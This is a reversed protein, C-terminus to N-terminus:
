LLTQVGVWIAVGIASIGVTIAAAAVRKRLFRQMDGINNVDKELKGLRQEHETSAKVYRESMTHVDSHLQEMSTRLALIEAKLQGFLGNDGRQGFLHGDMHGVQDALLRVQAALDQDNAMLEREAEEYTVVPVHHRDVGERLRHEQMALRLAEIREEM